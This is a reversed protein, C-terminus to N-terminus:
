FNKHENWERNNESIKKLLCYSYGKSYDKELPYEIKNKIRRILRMSISDNLYDTVIEYSRNRIIFSVLKRISPMWTDDVLVYGGVKLLKDSYFFDVLAYDFTHNGDIFIFDFKEQKALLNPLVIHSHLGHFQFIDEFGARKVNLTGISKWITHEMPDIAMHKGINRNVINGIDGDRLAQLIFLTSLGYAMGIELTNKAGTNKIINYLTIGKEYSISTPFPNIANGDIDEVRKTNYIREIIENM